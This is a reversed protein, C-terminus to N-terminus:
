KGMFTEELARKCRESINKFEGYDVRNPVRRWSRQCREWTCPAAEVTTDGHVRELIVQSVIFFEPLSEEYKRLIEFVTDGGKILVKADLSQGIKKNKRLIELKEHIKGRFQMLSDMELEEPFDEIEAADPWDMLHIAMGDVYDRDEQFYAMAEDATFTLIPAMLRVLAKFVMAMATQSSRREKWHPAYTYLRDKLIDHYTASLEVSCFRNLLQYVKHFDYIEYAETCQLILRRLKRLIWRDIFTMESQKVADKSKDFDYLNGLQFRLTNRITRYTGAVHHLIDDSIPIDSKFDESAIWLRIVDAGFRNVYDDATQPKGDSKSIKKGDAGVIFGHTLVTKYPAAGGNIAVSTLLSSQFWGRHQDSGELYLDAPFSLNSWKKLVAYHSV